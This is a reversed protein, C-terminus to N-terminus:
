KERAVVTSEETLVQPLSCLFIYLSTIGKSAALNRKAAIMRPMVNDVDKDVRKYKITLFCTVIFDVKSPNANAKSGGANPWPWTM